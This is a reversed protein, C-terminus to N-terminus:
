EDLSLDRVSPFLIRLREPRMTGALAYTRLGAHWVLASGVPAARPTAATGRADDSRAIGLTIQEAAANRYRFVMATPEGAQLEAGALAFGLSTLDPITATPLASPPLVAPGAASGSAVRRALARDPTDPEPTALTFGGALWTTALGAAAVLAALSPLMLRGRRQKAIVIPPADDLAPLLAHLKAPTRLDLSSPLAERDVGQFAARILECQSRWSGIRERDVTSAAARRLIDARQHVEIQGDILGHLESDSLLFGAM